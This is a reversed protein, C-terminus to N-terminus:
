GDKYYIYLFVNTSIPLYNDSAVIAPKSIDGVGCEWASSCGEVGNYENHLSSGIWHWVLIEDM